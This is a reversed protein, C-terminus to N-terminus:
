RKHRMRQHTIVQALGIALVYLVSCSLLLSREPVHGFLLDFAVSIPVIASLALVSSGSSALGLGRIYTATTGAVLMAAVGYQWWIGGEPRATIVSGPFFITLVGILIANQLLSVAVYILQDNQGDVGGTKAGLRRAGVQSVTSALLICVWVSVTRVSLNGTGAMSYIQTAPFAMLVLVPALVIIFRWGSEEGRRTGSLVMAIAPVLARFGVLLSLSIAEPFSMFFFYAVAYGGSWLILDVDKFHKVLPRSGGLAAIAMIFLAALGNGVALLVSRTTASPAADRIWFLSACALVNSVLLFIVGTVERRKM